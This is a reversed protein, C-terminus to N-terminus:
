MMNCGYRGTMNWGDELFEQKRIFMLCDMTSKCIGPGMHARRLERHNMGWAEGDSMRRTLTCCTKTVSFFCTAELSAIAIWSSTYIYRDIDLDISYIYIRWIAHFLNRHCFMGLIRPIQNINGSTGLSDTTTRRFYWKRLWFVSVWLYSYLCYFSPYFVLFINTTWSLCMDLMKLVTYFPLGRPLM